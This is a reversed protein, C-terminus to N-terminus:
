FRKRKKKISNYDEEADSDESEKNFLREFMSDICVRGITYNHLVICTSGSADDRSGATQVRMIMAQRDKASQTLTLITTAHATKRIDEAVDEMGTTKLGDFTQRGTQSASIGLVHLELILSRFGLYVGNVKDRYDKAHNGIGAMLDLYDVVIVDPAKGKQAKAKWVEKISQISCKDPPLTIIELDGSHEYFTKIKQLKAVKEESPYILSTTIDKYEIGGGIGFSPIKTEIDDAKASGTYIQWARRLVQKHAMELNFYLVNHGQRMSQIASYLLWWSKGRKPPAAILMFDERRITGVSKGLDGDFKLLPEQPEEYAEQLAKVDLFNTGDKTAIVPKNYGQIISVAREPTAKKLQETLLELSQRLCYDYLSDVIYDINIDQGSLSHKVDELVNITEPLLEEFERPCSISTHATVIRVNDVAEGTKDYYDKCVKVVYSLAGPFYVHKVFELGLLRKHSIYHAALSVEFPLEM